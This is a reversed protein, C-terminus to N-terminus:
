RQSRRVQKGALMNKFSSVTRGVDRRREATAGYDLEEDSVWLELQLVVLSDIVPFARPSYAEIEVGPKGGLAKAADVNYIALTNGQSVDVYFKAAVIVVVVAVFSLLIILTRKM